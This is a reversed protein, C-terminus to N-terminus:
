GYIVKEIGIAIASIAFMNIVIEFVNNSIFLAGIFGFWVSSCWVCHIGDSITRGLSNDWKMIIERLKRALEFPADERALISSIRWVALSILLIDEM